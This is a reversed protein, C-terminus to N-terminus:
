AFQKTNKLCADILKAYAQNIQKTKREALNRFEPALSAVKDPHNMKVTNRYAEKLEKESFDRALGLIERCDDLDLKKDESEAEPPCESSHTQRDQDQWHKGTRQFYSEKWKMEEVEKEYIDRNFSRLFSSFVMGHAYLFIASVTPGPPNKAQIAAADKDPESSQFEFVKDGLEGRKYVLRCNQM